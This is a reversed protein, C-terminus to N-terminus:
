RILTVDGFFYYEEGTLECYADVRYAYVGPLLYDGNFTGNWGNNIDETYFVKSGWRDFVHLRRFEDENQTFIRFKDNTGDENPSFVNPTYFVSSTCENVFRIEVEQELECGTDEDRIIVTFKMNSIVELVMPDPCDSCNLGETPIWEFTYNHDDTYTINFQVEENAFVKYFDNMEVEIANKVSLDVYTTDDECIRYAGILMYTMTSDPSDTITSQNIIRNGDDFEWWFRDSLLPLATVQGIDGPCITDGIAEIDAKIAVDITVTDYLICEGSTTMLIYTTTDLPNVLYEYDDNVSVTGANEIFWQPSGMGSGLLRVSEGLCILSDSGANISEPPIVNILISDRYLCGEDSVVNVFYFTTESPTATPNPCDLCSLSSDNDWTDVNGNIVAIETSAGKCISKDETVINGIETEVYVTLTDRIYCGFENLVTVYFSTTDDPAARLTQCNTICDLFNNDDDWFYLYSTDYDEVTFIAEDGLCIISDGSLSVTPGPQQVVTILVSDISECGNPHVAVFTYMTTTTPTAIPDLCDTCSLSADSIWFFDGGDQLNEVTAALAIDDGICITDDLGAYGVTSPSVPLEMDFSSTCGNRTEATLSVTYSQIEKYIHGPNKETSTNGDGFDWFYSTILGNRVTSNNQFMVVIEDCLQDNIIEFDVNPDESVEVLQEKILTDICNESRGIVQVDYVGLSDMVFTPQVDSSTASQPGYMIWEYNINGSSSNSLNQLTVDAPSNCFSTDSITFDLEMTNVFVPDGAIARACGKADVIIIKPVYRGVEQYEYSRTDSSVQTTLSDLEGNGYDYIYTYDDDSQASLTLTLPLCTPETSQSFEGIPGELRVYDNRIVTDKCASTMTAILTVDYIGPVTYVHSPSANTSNGSNDGFDWFYNVGNTSTNTFNSLLPPCNASLPDGSFEAKPDQVIVYNNKCVTQECGRKDIMTLCISYVGESSYTYNPNKELSFNGDGFDWYFSDVNATANKARFRVPSWTCSLTDATFDPLLEIGEIAMPYDIFSTCNWDDVVKLSLSYIGPTDINFGPFEENSVMLTDNLKWTYETVNGQFDISTSQPNLTGPVCVIDDFAASATLGNVRISDMLQISDQCGHIDTVRLMPGPFVGPNNYNLTPNFFTDRVISTAGEGSWRYRVADTSADIGPVAFPACGATTDLNFAAIPDAIIITDIYIHECASSDNYSILQVPYKGRGPFAIPMLLSDRSRLTDGPALTITWLTSDAGTSLNIIDPTYPDVCNYNVKFVSRPELINIYQLKLENSGCGNHYATLRVDFGGAHNYIKEPNQLFSFTSDGFEWFWSNAISESLDTFQKTDIICSELPTASFDVVPPIGAEIYNNRYVTDRCGYINEVMLQVDYKGTDQIVFSPSSETSTYLVTDGNFVKWEWSSIPVPSAVSDTMIATLPICGGPGFRPLRVSYPVIDLDIKEIKEICGTIDTYTLDLDYRGFEQITVDITDGRYTGDIGNGTLYWDFDGTGSTLGRLTIDTPVGCTFQNDISFDIVPKPFVQICNGVLTDICDSRYRILISPFCGEDEFIHTPQQERSFNGDGFIWLVSDAFSESVDTFVVQSGACVIETDIQFDDNKETDIYGSFVTTDICEGNTAIIIVDYLGAATYEVIPPFAGNFQEGNGFDWTYQIEPDPSLNNFQVEWPFGCSSILTYDIDLPISESVKVVDKKLQTSSCGREDFVTLSMSYTGAVDYTTTVTGLSMDTDIVNATGGLDWIWRTINGNDTTSLDTINISVPSCGSTKDITFDVVPDPYINIYNDKCLRDSNGNNDTVTLCVTFSGPEAFIAGPNQKASFAGGLDWEWSVINGSSTITSQDFFDVKLSGCADTETSSFDAQVQGSLSLGACCFVM